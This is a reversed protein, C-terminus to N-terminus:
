RTSPVEFGSDQAAERLRARAEVERARLTALREALQEAHGVAEALRAAVRRRIEASSRGAREDLSEVSQRLEASRRATEALQQNLLAAEEHIRVLAERAEFLARLRTAVSAELASGELYPDLDVDLDALLDFSAPVARREEVVLEADAGPALPMPVLLATPSTETHPPLDVPEYGSARPHRVFIRGAVRQGAAVRYSTRRTETREVLLRTERLGVIRAPAEARVDSREVHTSTDVAYPVFANEGARLDSLLGEGVMEGEAFLSIPGELLDVGSRNVLRAARFPHQASLPVEPDVRYLLVDEGTVPRHLITVMASSGAPISVGRAVPFRTGGASARPLPTTRQSRALTDRHVGPRPRAGAVPAADDATAEVRFGVRRNREDSGARLPRTAGYARPVLRHAAVGREILAAQVVAAREASVRWGGAEAPDAHGEIEVRTLQPNGTLTAAVADLIPRSSAALSSAGAEFYIQDLVRLQTDMIVVRGTDPCGEDDQMGNYTESEEPCADDVDLIGDADNDPDPCGDTDEFGDHDEPEDPCLDDADRIGDGDREGRTSREARVPGFAIAPVRHGTVNPRDVLRPTRLDVAFSLPADTALTLDIGRWDEATTNDVVAWAQLWAEDGGRAEPLVLRYSARWASTPASYALTVADRPGGLGVTIALSEGEAVGERPIVLSPAAADEPRAADLVTLTTLVDDVEHAALRMRVGDADTRGTREFYGVGNQYLVVRGLRMPTASAGCALLLLALWPTAHRM